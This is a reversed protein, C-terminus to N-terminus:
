SLFGSNRLQEILDEETSGPPGAFICIEGLDKPDFGVQEKLEAIDVRIPMDAPLRDLNAQALGLFLITKGDKRLAQAKIV